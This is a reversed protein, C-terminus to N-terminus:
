PRPIISERLLQCLEDMDARTLQYVHSTILAEIARKPSDDFFTSLLAELARTAAVSRSVVPTYIYRSGEGLHRVWGKRELIALITRVASYSPEHSLSLRIEQGSAHGLRYLVHMIERERRSLSADVCPDLSESNGDKSNRAGPM